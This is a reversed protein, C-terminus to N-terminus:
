KRIRINNYPQSDNALSILDEISGLDDMTDLVGLGRQLENDIEKKPEKLEDKTEKKPEKSEIKVNKGQFENGM